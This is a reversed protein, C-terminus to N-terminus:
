RTYLREGLTIPISTQRALGGIQAPHASLLTEEILKPHPPQLATALQKAMPYHVGRHFDIGVEM